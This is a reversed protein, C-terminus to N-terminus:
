LVVFPSAEARSNRLDLYLQGYTTLMWWADSGVAASTSSTAPAAYTRSLDGDKQSILPGQANGTSPAGPAGSGPQLQLMHAAWWVMAEGYVDGWAAANHRRVAASLRVLILNPDVASHEPILAQYLELSPPLASM